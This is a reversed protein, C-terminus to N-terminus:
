VMTSAVKCEPKKGWITYIKNRISKRVYENLNNLDLKRAKPLGDICDDILDEITDYISIGNSGFEPLGIIEIVPDSYLVGNKDIVLSAVIVGNEALRRREKISNDDKSIHINGDRLIFNNKIKEILKVSNPMLEVLNGNTVLFPNLIGYEKAFNIHEKLHRLEGHMPIVTTPKLADYFLKVENRRPHGSTHIPYGDDDLVSINQELLNNKIYSVSKDNGPITKSSFLVVDNEALKLHPHTKNAVRTLAARSEGQSGTLIILAKNAKIKKFDVHDYFHEKPDIYGTKKAVKIFRHIARGSLIIERNSSRAAAIISKIRAINSSFTTVVVRSKIKKIIKNLNLGVEKESLSTGDRFINTSDCVLVDCGEESIKKLKDLDTKEGLIPDNDIKWDGSHLINFGDITILLANPEPISHTLNILEVSFEDLNFKSNQKIINIPIKQEEGFENLKEKLLEATFSTAYIPVDLEKWLSSVAGFHDEHAHTLILGLLKGKRRKIFSIDPLIIDVGPYHDDAFGIGCDVMIWKTDPEKGYGYLYMNMGIEGAGGLPLYYIPKSNKKKKIDNKM